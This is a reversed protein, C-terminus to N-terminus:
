VAETYFQVAEIRPSKVEYYRYKTTYKIFLLSFGEVESTLKGDESFTIAGLQTHLWKRSSNDEQYIPKSTSGSGEIFEITEELDEEYDGLAEITVWEGGSTKLTFADGWPVLYCKLRKTSENITEEEISINNASSVDQNSVLVKNYGDRSEFSESLETVDAEDSILFDSAETGWAPVAVPYRKRIRLNGDPYSQLVCGSAETLKKIIEKPVEDNAFISNAPLPWDVGEWWDPHTVSDIFGIAVEEAVQKATTPTDWAKLLTDAHPRDLLSIPSLGTVTYSTEGHVRNRSKGELVFVFIDTNITVVVTKGPTCIVYEAMSGVNMSLSLCYQELSGAINIAIPDIVEGDILVSITFEQIDTADSLLSYFESIGVKAVNRERIDYQQEFSTRLSDETINYNLSFHVIPTSNITYEMTCTTESVITTEYPMSFAKLIPHTGYPEVFTRLPKESDTYEMVFSQKPGLSNGYWEVIGTSPFNVDNYFQALRQFSTPGRELQYPELFIEGISIKCPMDFYAHPLPGDFYVLDFAGYPQPTNGYPLEGGVFSLLANEYPLGFDIRTSLKEEYPEELAVLEYPQTIYPQDCKNIGVACDEYFQEIHLSDSTELKSRLSSEPIRFILLKNTLKDLFLTCGFETPISNLLSEDIHSDCFYLSLFGKNVSEKCNLLENKCFSTIFAEM